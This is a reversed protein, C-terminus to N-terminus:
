ISNPRGYVHSGCHVRRPLPPERDDISPYPTSLHISSAISSHIFATCSTEGRTAGGDGDHHGERGLPAADRGDSESDNTTQPPAPPPLVRTLLLLLPVSVFRFPVSILPVPVSSIVYGACRGRGVVVRSPRVPRASPVRGRTRRGSGPSERAGHQQTPTTPPILPPLNHYRSQPIPPNTTDPNTDPNCLIWDTLVWRGGGCWRRGERCVYVLSVVAQGYADGSGSGSGSGSDSDGGSALRSAADHLTALPLGRLGEVSGNVAMALAEDTATMVLPLSHSHSHTSLSLIHFLPPLQIM